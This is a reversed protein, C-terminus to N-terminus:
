KSGHKLLVGAAVSFIKKLGEAFNTEDLAELLDYFLEFTETDLDVILKPAIDAAGNYRKNVADLTPPVFLEVEISDRLDNLLDGIAGDHSGMDRLLDGLIKVDTAAMAALPDLTALVLIEEEPTLEVYKVPVLPEENRLALSVRLHGDVVFGTEKNVIVDDVWGVETLVHELGEQQSTPHIRWNLPNALLEEPNVEGYGVIRSRFKRALEGAKPTNTNATSAVLFESFEIKLSATLNMIVLEPIKRLLFYRFLIL